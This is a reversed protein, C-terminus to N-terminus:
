KKHIQRFYHQCLGNTYNRGSFSRFVECVLMFCLVPILANPIITEKVFRMSSIYVLFMM